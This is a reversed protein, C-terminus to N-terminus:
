KLKVGAALVSDVEIAFSQHWDYDPHRTYSAADKLLELAHSLKLRLSLVENLYGGAPDGGIPDGENNLGYVDRQYKDQAASLALEAADARLCQADLEPTRAVAAELSLVGLGVIREGYTRLKQEAELAQRKWMLLEERAGQYADSFDQISEFRTNWAALANVEVKSNDAYGGSGSNGRAGRECGCSNCKYSVHDAYGDREDGSSRKVIPSGGCFPCPLLEVESM